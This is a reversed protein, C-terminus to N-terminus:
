TLLTHVRTAITRSENEEKDRHVGCVWGDVRQRWRTAGLSEGGDWEKSKRETQRGVERVGPAVIWGIAAGAEVM